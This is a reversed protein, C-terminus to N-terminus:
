GCCTELTRTVVEPDFNFDTDACQGVCIDFRFDTGHLDDVGHDAFSGYAEYDDNQFEKFFSGQHIKKIVKGEPNAALYNFYPLPIYQVVDDVTAKIVTKLYHCVNVAIQHTDSRLENFSRSTCEDCGRGHTLCDTDLKDVVILSYKLCTEPKHTFNGRNSHSHEVLVVAPFDAKIQGTIEHSRSWFYGNDVDRSTKAFNSQNLDSIHKIVAFCQPQRCKLDSEPHHLVAQLFFKPIDTLKIM